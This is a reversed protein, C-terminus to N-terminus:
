GTKAYRARYGDTRRPRRDKAGPKRGGIQKGEARAREMGAKTRESRRASEQQAMWGAFAVLVDVIEPSSNLWSERVSLLTCDRERFIRVLRLADEAGLRTIRDLAWVVIVEFEGRWAAEQAAKLERRYEPGGIGDKWASDDLIFRRVIRIDHHACFREVDPIQNDTEQGGTSVRFWAAGNRM